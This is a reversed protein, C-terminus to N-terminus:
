MNEPDGHSPPSSIVIFRLGAAGKNFIRHPTGPPIHLSEGAHLHFPQQNIEFSAEGSLIYFLQQAKHHFHLQESSGPVMQEDIVCLAEHKLLHWGDSSQGWTYHEANSVSVIKPPEM